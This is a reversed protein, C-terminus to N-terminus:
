KSAWAAELGSSSDAGPRLPWQKGVSPGQDLAEASGREVFGTGSRAQPTRPSGLKRTWNRLSQESVGKDASFRRVSLGSTRYSAVIRAWEGQTRRM